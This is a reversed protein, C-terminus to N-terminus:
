TSRFRCIRKSYLITFFQYKLVVLYKTLIQFLKKIIIEFNPLNVQKTSADRQMKSHPTFLDDKSAFQEKEQFSNPTHQNMKKSNSFTKTVKPKLKNWYITEILIVNCIYVCFTKYLL